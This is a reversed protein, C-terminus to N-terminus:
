GAVRLGAVQLYMPPPLLPASASAAGFGGYQKKWRYLTQESIGLKRTVEAVPTGTDAQRLAFAIQEESDRTKKM